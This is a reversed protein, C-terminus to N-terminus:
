RPTKRSWGESAAITDTQTGPKTEDDFSGVYTSLITQWAQYSTIDYESTLLSCTVQAMRRAKDSVFPNVLRLKQKTAKKMTEGTHRPSFPDGRGEM